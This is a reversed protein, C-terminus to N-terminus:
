SPFHFLRKELLRVRIVAITLVFGLILPKEQSFMGKVNEKLILERTRIHETRVLRSTPAFGELM